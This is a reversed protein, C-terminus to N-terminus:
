SDHARGLARNFQEALSASIYEVDVRELAKDTVTVIAGFETVRLKENRQVFSNTELLAPTEKEKEKEQLFLVGAAGAGAVAGSKGLLKLFSRRNM